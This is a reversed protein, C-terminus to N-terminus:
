FRAAITDGEPKGFKITLQPYTAPEVELDDIDLMMECERIATVSGEIEMFDGFPLEDLVVEADRMRWISRRKEYIVRPKLGLEGIIARLADRDSVETEHEVQMKADSDSRMRRKYTLLCRDQTTRIRLVGGTANLPEGCYIMNEETDHRVFQASMADLSANMREIGGAPLRYKKEIEISM